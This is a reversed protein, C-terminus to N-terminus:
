ANLVDWILNSEFGRSIAYKVVKQNLIFENPESLQNRKKQIILELKELYDSECIENLGKNICFESIEKQILHQKIKNKGWGKQNFKGRVFAKAFREENTFNQEILDCIVNEIEENSLGSGKLRHRIESQCREQYACYKAMKQFAESKIM